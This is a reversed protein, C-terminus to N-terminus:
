LVEPLLSSPDPVSLISVLGLLFRPLFAFRFERRGCVSQFTSNNLAAFKRSEPKTSCSNSVSLLPMTQYKEAALRPLWWLTGQRWDRNGVLLFKARTLSM